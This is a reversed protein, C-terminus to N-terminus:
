STKKPKIGARRLEKALQALGERRAEIALEKAAEEGYKNISFTKSIRKGDAGSWYAQWYYFEIVRGNRIKPNSGRYIGVLGTTNTRRMLERKWIAYSATSHKAETEDRWAIAAALAQATGGYASDTFHKHVIKVKRKLCVKWAHRANDIRQIYRM